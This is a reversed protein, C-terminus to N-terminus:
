DHIENLLITRDRCAIGDGLIAGRFAKLQRTLFEVEDHIGALAGPIDMQLKHILVLDVPADHAALEGAAGLPIFAALRVIVGIQHGVAHGLGVPLVM